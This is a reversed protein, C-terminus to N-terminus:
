SQQRNAPHIRDKQRRAQSLFRMVGYWRWRILRLMIHDKKSLCKKVYPNAGANPFLGPVYERFKKLYPSQPEYLLIEKIPIFYAHEFALYELEQRFVEYLGQELFYLLIDQIAATRDLYSKEFNRSRMISGEHLIYHYLPGSQLYVVRGANVLLRPIMTLDEYNRGVPYTLGIGQWFACRYLKNCPSPTTILLQPQEKANTVRDRASQMSWRDHRGTAEEIEEFDFIVVDAQHEEACSVAAEVFNPSVYDDGDVYMLYVGSAQSLGINRVDSIGGNKKHIVRIRFDEEAYKDCIEGSRDGSGDDILLIELNRYTQVTLSEICKEIYREVNYVAVIVSVLPM